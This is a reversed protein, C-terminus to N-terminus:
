EVGYQKLGLIQLILKGARIEESPDTTLSVRITDGIGKKLLYGIGFSSRIYGTTKIGAETIGIHQPAKYKESFLKCAKITTIVDSNKLSVKYNKFGYRDFLEIEREAAEVMAEATPGGYKELLDKPLSGGNIGIRIPIGAEKACNIVREIDREKKMNGPNIRLGDIGGDVCELALRYDFHIDAM